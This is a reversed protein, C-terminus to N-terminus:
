RSCACATLGGVTAATRIPPLHRPPPRAVVVTHSRRYDTTLALHVNGPTKFHPQLGAGGLDGRRPEPRALAGGRVQLCSCAGRAQAARRRGISEVDAPLRDAVVRLVDQALEPHVTAQFGHHVGVPVVQESAARGGRVPRGENDGM